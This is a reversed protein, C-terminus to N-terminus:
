VLGLSEDRFGPYQGWETVAPNYKHYVKIYGEHLSNCPPSGLGLGQDKCWNAPRHLFFIRYFLNAGVVWELDGEGHM